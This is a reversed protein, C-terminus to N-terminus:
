NNRILEENSAITQEAPHLSGISNVVLLVMNSREVDPEVVGQEKEFSALRAEL